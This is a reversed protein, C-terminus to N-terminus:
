LNSITLRCILPGTLKQAGCGIRLRSSAVLSPSASLRGAKMGAGANIILSRLGKYERTFFFVQQLFGSIHIVVLMRAATRCAPAYVRIGGSGFVLFATNCRRGSYRFTRRALSWTLPIIDMRRGGGKTGGAWAWPPDEVRSPFM